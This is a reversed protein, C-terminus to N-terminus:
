ACVIAVATGGLASKSAGPPLVDLVVIEGAELRQRQTASLTPTAAWAGAAETLVVLVSLLMTWRRRSMPTITDRRRMRAPATRYQVKPRDRLRSLVHILSPWIRVDDATRPRAHPTDARVNASKRRSPM